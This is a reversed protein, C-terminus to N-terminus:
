GNEGNFGSFFASHPQQRNPLVLCARARSFCLLLLLLLLLLLVAACCLHWLCGWCGGKGPMIWPPSVEGYRVQGM